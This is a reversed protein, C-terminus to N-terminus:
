DVCLRHRVSRPDRSHSFSRRPHSSRHHNPPDLFRAESARSYRADPGGERCYVAVSDRHPTSRALGDRLRVRTQGSLRSRVTNRLCPNREWPGARAVQAAAQRVHTSTGTVVCLAARVIPRFATLRGIRRPQSPTCAIIVSSLQPVNGARHLRGLPVVSCRASGDQTRDGADVGAMRAAQRPPCPHIM